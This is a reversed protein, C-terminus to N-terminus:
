GRRRGGGLLQLIALFINVLNMYITLAAVVYEDPAFTNRIQWTNFVLLGSFVFVTAGAIWTQAVNSHFFLSLLSTAILVWLGTIFFGGWASFDRRSAFAYITLVAFTSATLGGAQALVGPQAKAYFLLIPALWVGMIFNFLYMLGINAPFARYAAKAALLPAFVLLLMIIPHQLVADLVPPQGVAFLAGGITILIGTFLLAYTRRILTAREEGTRVIARTATPAYSIGM